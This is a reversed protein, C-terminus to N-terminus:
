ATEEEEAVLDIEGAEGLKQALQALQKQAAAIETRRAGALFSIEEILSEAARKSLGKLLAARFEDDMPKLALALTRPEIDRLLRQLSWTDLAALDEFSFMKQRIARGIEPRSQTVSDLIAKTTDRPVADLVRAAVRVGDNPPSTPKAQNGILRRVTMALKDLLEQPLPELTALREIVQARAAAPLALLVTAAKEPPLQSVMLAITQPQERRLVNVIIRPDLEALEDMAATSPGGHKLHALIEAAKAPGLAQELARQAIELGGLKLDTATAALNGFEHVLAQQTAPDIFPQRAMETVVQEVHESSLGRLVQAAGEPGVVILFAALKQIKNMAPWIPASTM